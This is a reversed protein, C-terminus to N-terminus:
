QREQRKYAEQVDKPLEDWDFFMDVGKCSSGTQGM